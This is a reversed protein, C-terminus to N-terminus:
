KLHLPASPCMVTSAGVLALQCKSGQLHWIALEIAVLWAEPYLPRDAYLRSISPNMAEVSLVDTGPAHTQLPLRKRSGTVM